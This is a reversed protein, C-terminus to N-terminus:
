ETADFKLYLIKEFKTDKESHGFKIVLNQIGFNQGIM